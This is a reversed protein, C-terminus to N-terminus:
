KMNKKFYEYAELDYEPIAKTGAKIVSTFGTTFGKVAASVLEKYEKAKPYRYEFIYDLGSAAAGLVTKVIAAVGEDIKGDAVYKDVVENIVPTWAEVFTQNTAPVVEDVIDLVELIVKKANDDIKGLECAYAAAIGISKSVTEVKEASPLKDCGTLFMAAAFAAIILKKM